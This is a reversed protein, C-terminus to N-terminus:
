LGNKKVGNDIVAERGILQRRNTTLYRRMRRVQDPSIRVFEDCYGMYSMMNHRDPSFTYDIGHKKKTLKVLNKFSAPNLGQKTFYNISVDVPTDFVPEIGDETANSDGDLKKHLGAESPDKAITTRIKEHIEEMTMDSFKSGFTHLLGFYHGMEHSMLKFHDNATNHRPDSSDQFFWTGNVFGPMVVFRRDVRYSSFGSGTSQTPHAGYRFYVVLRDPFQGAYKNAIVKRAEAVADREKQFEKYESSAKAQQDTWGKNAKLETLYEELTKGQYRTSKALDLSNLIDSPTERFDQNPDYLIRIGVQLYARNTEAVLTAVQDPTISTKRGGDNDKCCLALMRVDYHNDYYVLDTGAQDDFNGPIIHSIYANPEQKGGKWQFGGQEVVMVSSVKSARDFFFLDTKSSGGFDGPVVLDWTKSLQTQRILKMGGQNDTTFFKADGIVRRYFFLDTNSDGNFDGPVIQDWTRKWQYRKLQKWNGGASMTFLKGEGRARSYFLLDTLGNGGFQGPIIKDWLRLNKRHKLLHITGNASVTFFKCERKYRSYVLFDTIADNNFNGPVVIDWTRQWKHQGILTIKGNATTFIKAIGRLRDYFLLDTHQSGGFNGPIISFWDKSWNHVGITKFKGNDRNASLFHANGTKIPIYNFTEKPLSIQITNSPQGTPRKETGNNVPIARLYLLKAKSKSLEEQFASLNTTFTGIQTRQVPYSTQSALLGGDTSKPLTAQDTNLPSNKPPRTYLQWVVAGATRIKSTDWSFSVQADNPNWSKLAVQRQSLKGGNSHYLECGGPLRSPLSIVKDFVMKDKSVLSIKDIGVAYGRSRESKGTVNVIITNRGRKLNLEGLNVTAKEVRTSYGSFRTIMRGSMGIAIDGYDPAKTFDISLDYKGDKAVPVFLEIRQGPRTAPWFLQKNGSWSGFSRMNQVSAKGASPKSSIREVELVTPRDQKQFSEAQSGGFLILTFFLMPAAVTQKLM